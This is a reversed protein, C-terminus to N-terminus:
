GDICAPRNLRCGAGATESLASSQFRRGTGEGTRIGQPHEILFPNRVVKNETFRVFARRWTPRCAGVRPPISGKGRKALCFTCAFDDRGSELSRCYTITRLRGLRPPGWMSPLLLKETMRSGCSPPPNVTSTGAKGSTTVSPSVSPSAKALALSAIRATNAKEAGVQACYPVRKVVKMSLESTLEVWSVLAQRQQRETYGTCIRQEPCSGAEWMEILRTRTMRTLKSRAAAVDAPTALHTPFCLLPSVSI